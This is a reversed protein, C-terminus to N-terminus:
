LFVDAIVQELVGALKIAGSLAMGLAIRALADANGVAWRWLAGIVEGAVWDALARPNTLLAYVRKAVDNLLVVMDHIYALISTVQGAAWTRLDNYAQQAWAIVEAVRQVVYNFVDTVRREVYSVASDFAKALLAPVVGYLIRGGFRALAGLYQVFGGYAYFVSQVIDVGASVWGVFVSIFANVANTIANRIDNALDKLSSYGRGFLGGLWGFIGM